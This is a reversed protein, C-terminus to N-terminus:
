LSVIKDGKKEEYKDSLEKSKAEMDISKDVVVQHRIKIGLVGLMKMFKKEDCNFWEGDKSNIYADMFNDYNLGCESCIFKFPIRYLFSREVVLKRIEKSKILVDAFIM